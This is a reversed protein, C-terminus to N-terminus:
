KILFEEFSSPKAFKKKWDERCLIEIFKQISEFNSPKVFYRDAQSKYSLNILTKDSSTSYMVIPIDDYEKKQRIARLCDLGSIDSLNHDLLIIDPRPDKALCDYIEKSHSCHIVDIPCSCQEAAALFLELEDPDDDVLLIRVQKPQAQKV